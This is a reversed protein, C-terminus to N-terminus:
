YGCRNILTPQESENPTFQIVKDADLIIGQDLGLIDLTPRDEVGPVNDYELTRGPICHNQSNGKSYPHIHVLITGEPLNAPAKFSAACPGADTIFSSSLRQLQYGGFGNPVIFGIQEERQSEPNPNSNSGYNSDIWMYEFGIQIGEDDLIPDGTECPNECYAPPNDEECPDPEPPLISGGGGDDYCPETGLPDCEGPNGGPFGGGGGGGIGNYELEYSICRIDTIICNILEGSQPDVQCVVTYFYEM